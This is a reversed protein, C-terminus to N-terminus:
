HISLSLSKESFHGFVALPKGLVAPVVALMAKMLLPFINMPCTPSEAIM